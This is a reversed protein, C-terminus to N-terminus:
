DHEAEDLGLQQMVRDLARGLQMRRGDPTGGMDAAIEGWAMGVGRLDALRREEDTLQHRVKDLLERGAVVRSPSAEGASPNHDEVPTSEVRRGDRRQAHQKRVAFALKNRAMAILLKSLQAPQELDFQGSAARVFFSALVSQCIDESDAVRKLGPDSLRVRIERRIMPEFRRVLDSAAEDDGARIRKLFDAFDNRESM